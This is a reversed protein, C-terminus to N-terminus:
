LFEVIVTEEALEEFTIHLATLVIAGVNVEETVEVVGISATTTDWDFISVICLGTLALPTPVGPCTDITRGLLVM